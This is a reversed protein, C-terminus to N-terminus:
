YTAPAEDFSNAIQNYGLIGKQAWAASRKHIAM